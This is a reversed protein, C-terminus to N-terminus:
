KKEVAKEKTKALLAKAEEFSLIAAKRCAETQNPRHGHGLCKFCRGEKKLQAKFQESYYSRRPHESLSSKFEDEDFDLPESIVEEKVTLAQLKAELESNTTTLAKNTTTLTRVNSRHLDRSERLRAITNNLNQITTNLGCIQAQYHQITLQSETEAEEQDSDM